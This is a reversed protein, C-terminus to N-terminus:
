HASRSAQQKQELSVIYALMIIWPYEDILELKKQQIVEAKEGFARLLKITVFQQNNEDTVECYRKFLHPAIKLREGKPLKLTGKSRFGDRIFEAIPMEYGAERIYLATRWCSQKYIEWNKNMISVEWRTGFFGRQQMTALLEEGARMEHFRKWVSPQIFLIRQGIYESMTKM